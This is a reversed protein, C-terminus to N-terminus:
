DASVSFTYLVIEGTRKTTLDPFDIFQQAAITNLIIVRGDKKLLSPLLKLFSRLITGSDGDHFDSVEIKGGEEIYPMNWLVFDFNNFDPPLKVSRIDGLIARVPFNGLRATTEINAIAVPNVEVVYVIDQSKLWAVWADSGSGAGIVLVKDGPKIDSELIANYYMQDYQRPTFVTPFIPIVIEREASGLQQKLQAMDDICAVSWGDADVKMYCLGCSPPKHLDDLVWDIQEVAAGAAGTRTPQTPKPHTQLDAAQNIPPKDVAHRRSNQSPCTAAPTCSGALLAFITAAAAAIIERAIADRVGIGVRPRKM